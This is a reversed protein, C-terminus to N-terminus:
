DGAVCEHLVLERVEDRLQRKLVKGVPNRPLEDRIEMREPLKYTAIEQARLHDIVGDLTLLRDPKLAVVACVREGMVEDPYGVVAVEAVDPHSAILTELEAPAINMGGRIILDKARDVYRLYELNEGDIVFLDGTKLFGEDDFPSPLDAGDVYGSFVGPGKLYLEGARGPEVVEEGTDRDILKITTRQAAPFTWHREGGYRPFFSARQEPRSMLKVDTMLSIGENSGFYNIIEIGYREYWGRVMWEQLPASGSGIQTLTSIDFKGLLEDNKLLMALLAPPAVTYTIEEQEIQQLFVQLDFPHHQILVCGVTLWPLLMGNIGAMNVMPFPNLVRSTHSLNPSYVTDLCMSLWEYHARPVGKPRSETGSTWCITICDNPDVPHGEVYSAVTDTDAERNASEDVRVQVSGTVQGRGFHFITRLSPIQNQLAVAEAALMRNTLRDVTLLADFKAINGVEVIEHRRYQVPLPSIIARVRWLAMFTVIQEVINPLQVAVVSGEGIGCSLLLAAVSDVQENLQNWTVEMYELDVLSKKNYPDIVAVQDRLEEVRGIFLQQVTEDTWWGKSTYELVRDLQHM